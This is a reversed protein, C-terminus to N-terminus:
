YTAQYHDPGWPRGSPVSGNELDQLLDGQRPLSPDNHSPLPGLTSDARYHCRTPVFPRIPMHLSLRIKFLPQTTSFFFHLGEWRPKINEM